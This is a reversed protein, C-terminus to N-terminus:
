IGYGDDHEHECNGTRPDDDPDDANVHFDIQAPPLRPRDDLALAVMGGLVAASLLSPAPKEDREAATGKGAEIEAQQAAEIAKRQQQRAKGKADPRQPAAELEDWPPRNVLDAGM